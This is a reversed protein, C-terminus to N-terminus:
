DGRTLPTSCLLQATDIVLLYLGIFLDIYVQFVCIFLFLVCIANILHNFRENVSVM